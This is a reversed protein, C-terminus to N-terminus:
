RKHLARVSQQTQVLTDPGIEGKLVLLEAQEVSVHVGEGGEGTRLVLGEARTAEEAALSSTYLNRM